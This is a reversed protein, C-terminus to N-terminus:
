GRENRSIIHKIVKPAAILFWVAYEDPNEMMDAMLVQLDVWKVEEIEEPNIALEGNYEGLFVHDYEYEHMVDSFRAYYVFDFIEEVECDVGIEEMMRIRVSEMLSVGSRPHSCCANAWLGGSHYKNRQRRQILMKDGDMLFVSFARHLVGDKHIGAKDGCGTENDLLDVTILGDTM